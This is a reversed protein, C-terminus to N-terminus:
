GPVPLLWQAQPLHLEALQRAHQPLLSCWVAGCPVLLRTLHDSPDYRIQFSCWTLFSASWSPAIYGSNALLNRISDDLPIPYPSFPDIDGGGFRDFDPQKESPNRFELVIENRARKTKPKRRAKGVETMALRRIRLQTEEDKLDDPHKLNVFSFTKHTSSDMTKTNEELRAPTVVDDEDDATEKISATGTFM